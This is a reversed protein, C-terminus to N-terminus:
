GLKLAPKLERVHDIFEAVPWAVGNLLKVSHAMSPVEAWEETFVLKNRLLEDVNWKWGIMEAVQAVPMFSIPASAYSPTPMSDLAASMPM